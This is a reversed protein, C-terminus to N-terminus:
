KTEACQKNAGSRCFRARRLIGFFGSPKAIEQVISIIFDYEIISPKMQTNRQIVWRERPLDFLKSKKAIDILEIPFHTDIPTIERPVIIHRNRFRAISVKFPAAFLITNRVVALHDPPKYASLEYLYVKFCAGIKYIPGKEVFYDGFLAKKIEM